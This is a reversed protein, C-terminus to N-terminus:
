LKRGTQKNRSENKFTQLSSIQDNSQKQPGHRRQQSQEPLILIHITNWLGPGDNEILGEDVTPREFTLDPRIKAFVKIQMLSGVDCVSAHCWSGQHTMTKESYLDRTGRAAVQYFFDGLSFSVYNLRFFQHQCNNPIGVTEVNDTNKWVPDSEFGVM